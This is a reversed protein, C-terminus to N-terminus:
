LAFKYDVCAFTQVQGSPMSALYAINVDYNGSPTISPITQQMLITVPGAAFNCGTPNSCAITRQDVPICNGAICLASTIFAQVNTLKATSVGVSTFTWLGRAPVAPNVSLSTANFVATMNATGCNTLTAGSFTATTALLVFLLVAKM